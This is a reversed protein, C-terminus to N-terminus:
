PLDAEYPAFRPALRLRVEGAAVGPVLAYGDDDFAIPIAPEGDSRVLVATMAAPVDSAHAPFVRLWVVEALGSRRRVPLGALVRASLWRILRDPDLRVALALTDRVIPTPPRAGAGSAIAAIIARRVEVDGEERYATALRVEADAARSAGIGRAVHARMVPDPGEFLARVESDVRPEGRQALALAALPADAAGELARDALEETSVVGDPDGDVLGLALVQRTVEDTEVARRALLATRGADDCWALEGMAAARRVRPDADALAPAVRREGLAVLSEVGVARDRPDTSRAMQALLGDLRASREGRVSRRVFYARASLRRTPASRAMADIAEMAALSPSRSLAYAVDGQIADDALLASLAAVALPSTQRGLAAVAAARLSLDSSVAARAAAARTVGDSQVLQALRLADLATADDAILQEISSAADAVGLRVLAEGAALRVRADRDGLSDRAAPLVRSDGGSGLAALAAARLAPDSASLTSEIADFARMDGVASALAITAPTTLAVGGLLAAAPPHIALADLAPRQGPGGSRAMAVLADLSLGNGSEALAIAAQQRALLVRAVGKSDEASPDRTVSPAARLALAQTQASVISALAARASETDLWGALGAVVALLARPDARAIGDLPARPDVAGPLGPGAMRELLARAESTHIGALRTIARRREEPDDSKALRTALDVALRSRLGTPAARGSDPAKGATQAAGVKDPPVLALAAGVWAAGILLRSGNSRPNARLSDVRTSPGPRGYGASM